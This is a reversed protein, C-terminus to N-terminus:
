YRPEKRKELIETLKDYPFLYILPNFKGFFTGSENDIFIEDTLSYIFKRGINAGSIFEGKKDHQLGRSKVPIRKEWM